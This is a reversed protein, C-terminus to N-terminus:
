LAEVGVEFKSIQSMMVRLALVLGPKEAATHVKFLM